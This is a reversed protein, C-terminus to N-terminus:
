LPLTSEGDGDERLLINNNSGSQHHMMGTSAYAPHNTNDREHKGIMPYDLVDGYSHQRRIGIIIM